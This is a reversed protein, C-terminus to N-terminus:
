GSMTGSAPPSDLEFWVVKGAGRPASGWRDSLASVLPIGRGSEDLLDAPSQTPAMSNQDWVNVRVMGAHRVLEISVEGHTHRLANTVVESVLLLTTDRLEFLDWRSLRGAIFDRATRAARPDARDVSM